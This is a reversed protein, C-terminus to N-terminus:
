IESDEYEEDDFNDEEDTNDELIEKSNEIKNKLKSIQSRLRIERIFAIFVSIFIGSFFFIAFWVFIPLEFSKHGLFSFALKNKLVESSGNEITFILLFTAVCVSLIWKLIWM